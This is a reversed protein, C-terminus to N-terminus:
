NHGIKKAALATVYQTILITQINVNVFFGCQHEYWVKGFKARSLMIVLDTTHLPHGYITHAAHNRARHVSTEM